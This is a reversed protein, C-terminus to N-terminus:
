QRAAAAPRTTAAPSTAPSRLLTTHIAPSAPSPQSSSLISQVETITATVSLKADFTVHNGVTVEVKASFPKFSAATVTVQYFGPELGTIEYAGTSSTIATRTYNTDLNRVSVAAEPVVAGSPDVVTGAIEGAEVQASAMRGSVLSAAFLGLVILKLATSRGCIRPSSLTQFNSGTRLPFLRM